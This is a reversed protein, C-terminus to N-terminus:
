KKENSIKEGTSNKTNEIEMKINFRDANMRADRMTSSAFEVKRFYKSAELKPLLETARGAYGEINVETTTIRTRSVWATKPLILTLEKLINLTMIRDNKFNNIVAIEARLSEAEKKLDEVKRSEEKKAGIQSAIEELKKEEVKLPAILYFIWIGAIALLLLITLALPTKQKEHRGKKLLNLGNAETWLSQIVGGVAAYPMEKHSAPLKLRTNTEGACGAEGMISFPMGLRAKLLERLAPSKDRLLTIIQPAMDKSKAIKLLSEIDGSIMEAKTKEDLGTLAGSFNHAPLGNIFLGGEYGKNGIEVFLANSKRDMYRCLAGIASLNVTIRSVAFGNENLIDIYPRIQDARAATLLLSIRDGKDGARGAESLVRFDFFAEEATFPTLRDLEYSIVDPLNEKVTSPFEVTRIITWTKPISLTIDKNSTNFESVALSLSSLLDEPQPYKDEEFSYERLGTINIRSLFRSGYAISINGKDISASLNKQSAIMDDAPSFTLVRQIPAWVRGLKAGIDSAVSTMKKLNTIGTM